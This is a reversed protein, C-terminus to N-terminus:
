WNQLRFRTACTTRPTMAWFAHLFFIIRICIQSKTGEPVWEQRPRAHASTYVEKIKPTKKALKKSSFFLLDTYRRSIQQGRLQRWYNSFCICHQSRSSGFKEDSRLLIDLLWVISLHIARLNTAAGRLPVTKSRPKVIPFQILSLLTKIGLFLFLTFLPSIQHKWMKWRKAGFHLSTWVISLHTAELNKM